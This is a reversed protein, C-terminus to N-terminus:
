KINNKCIIEIAEHRMQESIRIIVACVNFIVVPDRESVYCGRREGELWTEDAIIKAIMPLEQQEIINM